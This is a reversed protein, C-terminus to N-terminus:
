KIIGRKRLEAIISKSTEEKDEKPEISAFREPYMKTLTKFGEYVRLHFEESEEELRDDVVKGKQKRWSNLPNMDIFITCIPMCNNVAYENIEMVKKLGLGRAIGQYALSSDLFRDCVVINGKALSPLIVGNIHEVRAAAFLLAECLPHMEEKLIINRIKEAVNTGGPERTFVTQQNTSELYDRLYKVQTSKGVGECGEITIFKNM